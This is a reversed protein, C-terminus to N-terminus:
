KILPMIKELLISYHQDLVAQNFGHAAGPIIVMEKAPAKIKEFYAETLEKSTLIDNEGQILYVPIKFNVGEQMLDISQSMSEIGMAKFGAYHIFSYDDGDYRHQADLENNYEPAAKWWAEPAAISNEREYKKIVRMLQGTKKPHDYPPSGLSELAKKSEEDNKELVKEFIKQYVQVFDKSPTVLQSHGIYAYFIDPRKVSMKVGLVSGWSSGFLIIKEKGLHKLLYESLEIGDETMQEVTLPNDIWYEEDVKDPANRGFTRATGRQDWQVLTFRNEWGAYIAEAYPSLPSGPGGHLFLIVPNSTDNGRITIWQEIGGISIFRDEGISQAQAIMLSSIFLPLISIILQKKLIMM